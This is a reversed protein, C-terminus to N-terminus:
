RFARYDRLDIGADELLDRIANFEAKSPQTGFISMTTGLAVYGNRSPNNTITWIAFQQVRFPEDDFSAAGLLRALDGDAPAALTFRDDGGPQDRRMQACAVPVDWVGEEGASIVIRVEAVSVMAQTRAAKPEFMTGLEVVVDLDEDVSSRLELEVNQLGDGVIRAEILGDDVASALDITRMPPETPWPSETPMTPTSPTPSGPEPSPQPHANAPDVLECCRDEVMSWKVEGRLETTGMQESPRCERPTDRLTYHAVERATAADVIRVERSDQYRTISPGNIYSCVEIQTQTEEASICAVLEADALTAPRWTLPPYGTWAHPNGESDLVVMHKLVGGAVHGSGAGAVPIGRCAPALAAVISAAPLQNPVTAQTYAVLGGGALVAVLLVVAARQGEHEGRRWPRIVVGMLRVALWGVLLLPIALLAMPFFLSDGHAQAAHLQELGSMALGAVILLVVLAGLANM